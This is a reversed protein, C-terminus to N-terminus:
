QVFIKRVGINKGDNIQIFLQGNYKDGLEIPINNTGINADYIFENISRGALDFLRVDIQTNEEGMYQIIFQGNNPNPFVNFRNEALTNQTVKSIPNSKVNINELYLNNAFRNIGRIKINVLSGAYASLNITDSKWQGASTPKFSAQTATATELSTGFKRYVRQFGTGCGNEVWVELTDSFTGSTASTYQAYARDFVLIPNNVATLNFSSLIFEDKAGRVTYDYYNIFLSYSGTKKAANTVKWTSDANSPILTYNVPFNNTEFGDFYPIIGSAIGGVSFASTLYNNSLNNDSTGNVNKVRVFFTYNGASRTFVNSSTLDITAGPVITGNYTFTLSDPSGITGFTFQLATINGNGNNRFKVTPSFTTLCNTGIPALIQLPQADIVVVNSGSCGDSTLIASRSSNLIAEVKAIQGITFMNMCGDDVYDMYNMYMIGNTTNNCYDKQIGSLCGYSAGCQNPTDGINDSGNCESAKNSCVSGTSACDDGWIHYLGMWHGVEHTATRGKTYPSLSGLGVVTNLLVVGDLGAVGGPFTAFGLIGGTLNCTWVNLYKNRSWADLGSQSTYKMSEDGQAFGSKTTLKREIGTTPNGNPDRNALCFKIKMGSALSQFRTPTNGADANLRAYDKNLIDIQEYIKQDSINQAATKYIVHFVVPIIITDGAIRNQAHEPNALWNDAMEMAELYKQYAKPNEVKEKELLEMSGCRNQANNNLIMGLSFLFITFIKKM